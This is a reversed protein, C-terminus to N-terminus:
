LALQNDGKHLDYSIGKWVLIGTVEGPLHAMFVWKGNDRFFNVTLNGAPHPIEGSVKQMAGLHPEIKVRAFGPADSDIGLVIRYFEINPSAGWAHCDSRATNIESDEAWTTLGMDINEQWKGLWNLYDNGMGAINLAQHLYYKFYISAPALKSDGLMKTGIEGAMSDSALQTLIALANAHQSFKDKGPTDAYLRKQGDWYKAQITASLQTTRALYLDAYAQMGLHKELQAALQYAWLLQMDLICSNGNTGEPATGSSWDPHNVWDTFNWYPVHALSGDAQQYHNFFDLITRTGAIKEKVYASDNRYMWFDYLMGIYWLSFTPIIQPSFSPHRSMTLGEAIRSHDMQDLAKRALRDDGSNYYSILAQIRSDGIYQLQEYYPCDMYTEMACSRATRWGIDMIKQIDKNDCTFEANMTFPYGTFTGYVDDIVMPDSHTQVTLQLYRFTRWYLSTFEQRLTGDSVISDKRGLFIKDTTENRNGKGWLESHGLYGGKGTGYHASHAPIFLAEAYKISIEADRGNSFLLTMYANTLYGQDLLFCARTNAAITVPAAVAPFDPPLVTGSAERVAKLRQMTREMQPITSPVLMWGFADPSGKPSGGRWYAKEANEWNTDHFGQHTWGKMNKRMDVFEGAGTVFYGPVEHTTLPLYSNDRMCKWTANTNAVYEDPTNGQLIFGTHWSIQAEPRLSGDNWVKAAIVNLGGVLYPAIDVTEYNWYYLDGRAPGVSVLHDNVYLKYRNDASVHIIFSTREEPIDLTKRFLYVGYSDPQENPVTIWFAEWAHSLLNPAVSQAHCPLVFLFIIWLFIIRKKM